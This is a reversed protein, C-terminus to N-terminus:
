FDEPHSAIEAFRNLKKEMDDAIFGPWTARSDAGSVWSVLLWPLGLNAEYFSVYSRMMGQGCYQAVYDRCDHDIVLCAKILLEFTADETKPEGKAELIRGAWAGFWAVDLRTAVPAVAKLSRGFIGM